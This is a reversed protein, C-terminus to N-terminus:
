PPLARGRWQPVHRPRERFIQGRAGPRPTGPWPPGGPPFGARCEHHGGGVVGGIPHPMEGRRPDDGVRSGTVDAEGREEVVHLVVIDCRELPEGWWATVSSSRSRVGRERSRRANVFVSEHSTARIMPSNSRFLTTYPFLTSRPPRRIM